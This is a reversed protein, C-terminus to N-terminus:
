DLNQANGPGSYGQHGVPPQTYYVQTQPQVAYGGHYIQKNRCCCCCACIIILIILFVVVGIIVLIVTMIENYECRKLTGSYRVNNVIVDATFSNLRGGENCETCGILDASNKCFMRFKDYCFAPPIVGGDTRTVLVENSSCVLGLNGLPAQNAKGNESLSTGVSM